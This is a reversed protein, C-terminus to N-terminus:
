KVGNVWTNKVANEGTTSCKMLLPNFIWPPTLECDGTIKVVNLSYSGITRGISMLKKNILCTDRLLKRRLVGTLNIEGCKSM